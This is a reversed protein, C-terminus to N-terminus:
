ESNQDVCFGFSEKGISSNYGVNSAIVPLAGAMYQILKFGAKGRAFENDNLPMIGIHSDLIQQIAVEHTWSINDIILHKTSKTVKANCVVKLCLAKGVKKNIKKAANDLYDLVAYLNPMNNATALWIMNVTTKYTIKKSEVTKEIDSLSIDGDTTCLVDVKQSARELIISKLYPTSVIIRKASKLYLSSEKISIETGIISDDFDWIFSYKKVKRKLLYYSLPM